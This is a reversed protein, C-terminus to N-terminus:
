RPANLSRSAAPWNRMVPEVIAGGGCTSAPCCRTNSSPPIPVTSTVSVHGPRRRDGLRPERHRAPLDVQEAAAVARRQQEEVAAAPGARPRRQVVRQARAEVDDRGVMGAHAGGVVELGEPGDVVEGQVVVVQEVLEAERRRRDDARGEAGPQRRLESHERRRADLLEHEHGRDPQPQGIVRDRVDEEHMRLLADGRGQVVRRARGLHVAVDIRDDLGVAVHRRDRV